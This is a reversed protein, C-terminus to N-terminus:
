EETPTETRDGKWSARAALYGFAFLAIMPFAVMLMTVGTGDPTILAGFVFFGVIAYRWNRAWFAPSTFGAASLTWMVVPLQFAVGMALTFLLVFDLFQDIFLLKQQVGLSDAITYLFQFMPPLMIFFAMSAGLVFLLVVPAVIRLIIRRERPRLAPRVFRGLQYAAVPVTAMVALFFAMKIQVMVAEFPSAVAVSVNAPLDMHQVTANFAQSALSNQADLEVYPFDPRVRLTMCVIFVVLFVVVVSRFRKRLEEIHQLIGM